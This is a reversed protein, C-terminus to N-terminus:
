IVTKNALMVNRARQGLSGTLILGVWLHEEVTDRVKGATFLVEDPSCSHCSSSSAVNACLDSHLRSPFTPGGPMGTTSFFPLSIQAFTILSLASFM